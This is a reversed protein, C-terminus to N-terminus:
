EKEKELKYSYGRLSNVLLVSDASKTIEEVLTDGDYICRIEYPAITEAGSANVDSQSENAGTKSEVDFRLGCSELETKVKEANYFCFQFDAVIYSAKIQKPFYPSDLVVAKGDYVLTGMDSGMSNMLTMSIKEADSQVWSQLSFKKISYSGTFLQLEDIVGDMDATPLLAFTKDNTVRVTLDESSSFKNASTCSVAFFSVSLIILLFTNKLSMNVMGNTYYQFNLKNHLNHVSRM